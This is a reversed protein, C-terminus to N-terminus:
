LGCFGRQVCESEGLQADAMVAFEGADFEGAILQRARERQIQKIVDAALQVREAKAVDCEVELAEPGARHVCQKWDRVQGSCVRRTASLAPLSSVIETRLCPSRLEM